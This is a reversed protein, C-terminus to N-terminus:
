RKRTCASPSTHFPILPLMAYLPSQPMRWHDIVISSIAIEKQTNSISRIIVSITTYGALCHKWAAPRSKRNLWAWPSVSTVLIQTVSFINRFNPHLFHVSKDGSGDSLVSGLRAVVRGAVGSPLELIEDLAAMTVPDKAICIGQIVQALRTAEKGQTHQLVSNLIDDYLSDLPTERSHSSIFDEFRSLPDVSHNLWKVATSAWTFLGSARSVFTSIQEPNLLEQLHKSAYLTIDHNSKNTKSHLDFNDKTSSTAGNRSNPSFM